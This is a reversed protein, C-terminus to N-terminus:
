DRDHRAERDLRSALATNERKLAAIERRAAALEQTLGALAVGLRAGRSVPVLDDQAALRAAIISVGLGAGNGQIQSNDPRV